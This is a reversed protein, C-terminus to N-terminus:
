TVQGEFFSTVSKTDMKRKDNNVKHLYKMACERSCTKSSHKKSKPVYYNKKCIKCNLNEGNRQPPFLLMGKLKPHELAHCVCCLIEINKPDSRLVPNESYPIIHHGHLRESSGCRQCYKHIKKADKIAKRVSSIRESIGGKWNPHNEGSFIKARWTALCKRSCFRAIGTRYKKAFFYKYCTECCKKIQFKKQPRNKGACSRSCFKGLRDKRAFFIKSCQLCIKKVKGTGWMGM